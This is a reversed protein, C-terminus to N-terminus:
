IVYFFYLYKNSNNYWSFFMYTKKLLCSGVMINFLMNVYVLMFHDNLKVKFQMSLLPNNSKSM